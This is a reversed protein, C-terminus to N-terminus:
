ISKSLAHVGKCIVPWREQKLKENHGRRTVLSHRYSETAYLLWDFFLRFSNVLTFTHIQKKYVEVSM